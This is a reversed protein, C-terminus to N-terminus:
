LVQRSVFGTKTDLCTKYSLVQGISLKSVDTALPFTLVIDGANTPRLELQTSM